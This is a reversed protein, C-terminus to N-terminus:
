EQTFDQGEDILIAGYKNSEARKNQVLYDIWINGVRSNYKVQKANNLM